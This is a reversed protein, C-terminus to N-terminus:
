LFGSSTLKVYSITIHACGIDDVCRASNWARSAMKIPYGDNTAIHDVDPTPEFHDKATVLLISQLNMDVEVKVLSTMPLTNFGRYLDMM